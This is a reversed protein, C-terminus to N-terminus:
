ESRNKIKKREREKENKREKEKREEAGGEDDGIIEKAKRLHEKADSIKEKAKDLEGSRVYERADNLDSVAEEIEELADENDGAESKLQAAVAELVQIETMLAHAQDEKVSPANLDSGEKLMREAKNLLDNAERLLAKAREYNEESIMQKAKTILDLAQQIVELAEHNGQEEAVGQLKAAKRELEAAFKEINSADSVTPKFEKEIELNKIRALIHKAQQIMDEAIRLDKKSVANQLTEKAGTLLKLAKEIAKLAEPNDSYESKLEEIENWLRDLEHLKDKIHDLIGTVERLIEEAKELINVANRTEGAEWKVKADDILGQIRDFAALNLGTQEAESKAEELKSQLHELTREFNKGKYESLEEQNGKLQKSIDNIEDVTKANLLKQKVMELADIVEQPFGLAHAEAIMRDIREVTKTVFEKVRDLRHKQTNEMLSKHIDSLIQKARSLSLAAADIDGNEAYEAAETIAEDFNAIYPEITAAAASTTAISMLKNKFEITQAIAQRLRSIEEAKELDEEEQTGATEVEAEEQELTILAAFVERFAKMANKAHEKASEADNAQVAEKASEFEALGNEYITTIDDSITIGKSLVDAIKNDVNQKSKNLIDLLTQLRGNGAKATVTPLQVEFTTSGDFEGYFAKITYTGAIGCIRGSLLISSATFSGDENVSVQQFSCAENNPNWVQVIVPINSPSPVFGFIVVSEEVTYVRKDLNLVIESQGYSASYAFASALLIGFLMFAEFYRLSMKYHRNVFRKTHIRLQSGERYARGDKFSFM